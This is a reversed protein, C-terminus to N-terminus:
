LKSVYENSCAHKRNYLILFVTSLSVRSVTELILFSISFPVWVLQQIKPYINHLLLYMVLCNLGRDLIKLSEICFETAEMESFEQM